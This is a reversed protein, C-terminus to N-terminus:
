VDVEGEPGEHSRGPHVNGKGYSSVFGLGETWFTVLRLVSQGVRSKKKSPIFFVRRRLSAYKQCILQLRSESGFFIEQLDPTELATVSLSTKQCTKHRIRDSRYWREPPIKKAVTKLTCNQLTLLCSSPFFNHPHSFLKKIAGEVRFFSAAYVESVKYNKYLCCPLVEWFVSKKLTKTLIGKKIM